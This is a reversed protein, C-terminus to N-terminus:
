AEEAYSILEKPIIVNGWVNSSKGGSADWGVDMLRIDLEEIDNISWNKGLKLLIRPNKLLSEM